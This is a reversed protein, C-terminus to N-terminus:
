DKLSYGLEKMMPEIVPYVNKILDINKKWKDKSPKTVYNVLPPNKSLKKIEDSFPIEIFNCVNEITRYTNASLDEYSITCKRKGDINKLGNLAAENSSLWQFACVEELSKSVYNEWSPPLVYKWHKGNNESYGKINLLHLDDKDWDPNNWWPNSEKIDNLEM